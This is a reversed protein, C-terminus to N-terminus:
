SYELTARNNWVNDFNTNGDAWTIITLTGSIEIRKIKWVSESTLSSAIASGIYTITSSAEDVIQAYEVSGSTQISVGSEISTINVHL